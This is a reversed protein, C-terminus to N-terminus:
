KLLGGGGGGSSPYEMVLPFIARKDKTFDM